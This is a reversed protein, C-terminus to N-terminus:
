FLEGQVAKTRKGNLRMVVQSSVLWGVLDNPLMGKVALEKVSDICTIVTPKKREIRRKMLEKFKEVAWSDAGRKAAKVGSFDDIILCDVRCLENMLAYENGNGQAGYTAKIRDLVVGWRVFLCPVGDACLTNAIVAALHTKGSESDGCLWIGKGNLREFNACFKECREAVEIYEDSEKGDFLGYFTARQMNSPMADLTKQRYEKVSEIRAQRREENRNRMNECECVCNLFMGRAPDDFSKERKCFRCYIKGDIVYEKDEDVKALADAKKKAYVAASHLVTFGDMIHVLNGM